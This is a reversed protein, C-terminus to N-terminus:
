RMFRVLVGASRFVAAGIACIIALGALGSGRGESLVTGAESLDFGVDHPTGDVDLTLTAGESGVAVRDINKLVSNAIEVGSVTQTHSSVVTGGGSDAVAVGPLMVAVFVLGSAIFKAIRHLGMM